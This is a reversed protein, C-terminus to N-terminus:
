GLDEWFCDCWYDTRYRLWLQYVAQGLIFGCIVFQEFGKM